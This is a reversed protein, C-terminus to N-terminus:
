SNPDHNQIIEMSVNNATNPALSNYAEVKPEEIKDLNGGSILEHSNAMSSQDLISSEDFSPYLM